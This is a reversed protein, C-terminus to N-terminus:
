LYLLFEKQVLLFDMQDSILVLILFILVLIVLSKFNLCAKLYDYSIFLLISSPVILLSWISANHEFILWALLPFKGGVFYHRFKPGHKHHLINYITQKRHPYLDSQYFLNYYLPIYILFLLIIVSLTSSVRKFLISQRKDSRFPYLYLPSNIVAISESYRLRHNLM